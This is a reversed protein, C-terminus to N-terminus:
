ITDRGGAGPVVHFSLSSRLLSRGRRREQRVELARDGPHALHQSGGAARLQRHLAGMLRAGHDLLVSGPWAGM